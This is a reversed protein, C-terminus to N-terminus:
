INLAMGAPIVLIALVIALMIGMPLLLKTGAEEGMQRAHAKRQEYAEWEEQELLRQMGQAGKRVNQVILASLRRYIGLQCRTGFNEYAQLEGVGDRVEHLTNLMEEYAYREEIEGQARKKQYAFAIKEWALSINMGAGLLLSFKGVIGAYDIMMQREWAARKRRKEEKERFFIGVAAVAALFVMLLSRNVMKQRWVVKKGEVKDPLKIYGCNEEENQASILAALREALQEQPSKEWPVARVMFQYLCTEEQCVLEATVEVLTPKQPEQRLTGDAHFIDYDSFHYIAEVAGEQLYEPLYLRGTVQDKSPNSGPILTDLESKARELYEKKQAKTLKKEAIELKMPYNELVGPVDVLFEKEAIGQGPQNRAIETKNEKKGDLHATLAALLFGVTFILLVQHWKNKQLGKHKHYLAATLCVAAGMLYWYM